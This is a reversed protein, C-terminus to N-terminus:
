PAPAPVGVVFQLDARAHTAAAEPTVKSLSLVAQRLTPVAALPALSADSLQTGYAICIELQPCKPLLAALGADTLTTAAVNLKRLRPLEPLVAAMADDFPTQSLNLEVIDAAVPALAGVQEKTLHSGLSYGNVLLDPQDRSVFSISSTGLAAGVEAVLPELEARRALQDPSPGEVEGHDLPGAGSAPASGIAALAEEPLNLEGVKGTAPAGAAIWARLVLLAAADHQPKDAPPMHHEDDLALEMRRILLSQAPDGPVVSPGEKGGALIAEHSDLRLQGKQMAASHCAYCYSDLLPTVVQTYIEREAVPIAAIDEASPAAPRPEIGLMKELTPKIAPPAYSTLYEDGHTLNGGAHGTIGLALAALGLSVSYGIGTARSHWHARWSAFFLASGMLGAFLTGWRFHPLFNHDQSYDGTTGLLYGLGAALAATLATFVLAPLRAPKVQKRRLRRLGEVVLLYALGGIPLHLLLPHFRGLFKVFDPTGTPVQGRALVVLAAAVLALGLLCGLSCVAVLSASRPNRSPTSPTADASSM